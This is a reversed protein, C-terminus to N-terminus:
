SIASGIRELIIIDAIKLNKRAPEVRRGSIQNSLEHEREGGSSYVGHKMGM